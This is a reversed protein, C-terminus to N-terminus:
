HKVYMKCKEKETCEIIKNMDNVASMRFNNVDQANAPVDRHYILCYRTGPWKQGNQLDDFGDCNTKVYANFEDVSGTIAQQNVLLLANRTEAACSDCFFAAVMVQPTKFVDM